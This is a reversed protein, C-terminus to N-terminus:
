YASVDSKLVGLERAMVTRVREAFAEASEGASPAM